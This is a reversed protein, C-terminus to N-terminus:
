HNRGRQVVKSAESLDDPHPDQEHVDEGGARKTRIRSEEREPYQNKERSPAERSDQLPLLLAKSLKVRM